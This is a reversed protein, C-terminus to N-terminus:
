ICESHDCILKIDGLFQQQKLVCNKDDFCNFEAWGKMNNILHIIREDKCKSSEMCICETINCNYRTNENLTCGKFTCEFVEEQYNDNRINWWQYGIEFNENKKNFVM